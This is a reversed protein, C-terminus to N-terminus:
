KQLREAEQDVKALIAQRVAIPTSNWLIAQARAVRKLSEAWASQEPKRYDRDGSAFTAVEGKM